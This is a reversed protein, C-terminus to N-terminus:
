SWMANSGRGAAGAGGYGCLLDSSSPEPGGPGTTGPSPALDRVGTAVVDVEDALSYWAAVVVVTAV